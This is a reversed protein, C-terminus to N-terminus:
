EEDDSPLEDSNEEKNGSPLEDSNEEKALLSSIRHMTYIELIAAVLLMLVWKNYVMELYTTYETFYDRLWQYASDVMLLGSLVFFIDAVTMIKKLRKITINSGEYTQSVQMSVFLLAGVLFVWCVIPQWVLFVFCGAGVVMLVGGILFLASQINSLQKM